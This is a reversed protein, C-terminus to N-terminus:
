ESKLEKPTKTWTPEHGFLSLHSIEDNLFERLKIADDRHLYFVADGLGTELLVVLIKVDNKVGMAVNKLSTAIAVLEHM